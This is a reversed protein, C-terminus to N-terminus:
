GIWWRMESRVWQSLSAFGLLGCAIALLLPLSWGGAPVFGAASPRGDLKASTGSFVCGNPRAAHRGKGNQSGATASRSQQPVAPPTFAGNRQGKV